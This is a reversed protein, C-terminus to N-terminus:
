DQRSLERKIAELLDKRLIERPTRESRLLQVRRVVNAISGGSLAHDKALASVDVDRALKFSPVDLARQWLRYRQEADPMPFNVTAQFRRGFAPDINSKLNSALVVLGPFNEMRQLLYAVEQNAYRDNSSGLASRKGFLADAEDFFLIWDKGEAADFLWALNKETEGIYKSAISSLDVRYVQLKVSKGILAAAQTKGTGPPGYFLARYGPKLQIGTQLEDRHKLWAIIQSIETMTEPALVLDDWELNTTLEKAPFPDRIHSTLDEEAAKTQALLPATSGLLFFLLLALGQVIQRLPAYSFNVIPHKTM